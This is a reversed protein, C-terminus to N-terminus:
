RCGGCEQFLRPLFQKVICYPSRSLPNAIKERTCYNTRFIIEQIFRVKSVLEHMVQSQCTPQSLDPALIQRCFFYRAVIAFGTEKSIALRGLHCAPLFTQLVKQSYKQRMIIIIIHLIQFCLTSSYEVRVPFKVSCLALYIPLSYYINLCATIFISAPQLSYERLSYFINIYSTFSYQHPSVIFIQLLSDFFISAVHLLINLNLSASSCASYIQVLNQISYQPLHSLSYALRANSLFIFIYSISIPYFISAPRSLSYALRDPSTAAIRLSM